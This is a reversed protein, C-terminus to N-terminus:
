TVHRRVPGRQSRIDGARRRQHGIRHVSVQQQLTQGDVPVDDLPHEVQGAIGTATLQFKTEMSTCTRDSERLVGVRYSM